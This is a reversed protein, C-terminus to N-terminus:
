HGYRLICWSLPGGSRRTHLWGSLPHSHPATVGPGYVLVGYRYFAERRSDIYTTDVVRLHASGPCVLTNHVHM